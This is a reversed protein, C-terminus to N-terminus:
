PKTTLILAQGFLAHDSPKELARLDYDVDADELYPTLGNSAMIVDIRLGRNLRTKLAKSRYDFWSFRDNRTPNLQRYTDTLGWNALLLSGNEKRRAM